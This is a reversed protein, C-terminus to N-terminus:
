EELVAQLYSRTNDRRLSVTIVSVADFHWFSLLELGKVPNQM